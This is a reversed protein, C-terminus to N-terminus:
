KAIDEGVRGNLKGYEDVNQLHVYTATYSSVQTYIIYASFKYNIYASFKYIYSILVHVEYEKQPRHMVIM